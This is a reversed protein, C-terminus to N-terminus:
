EVEERPTLEACSEAQIYGLTKKADFFLDGTTAVISDIM